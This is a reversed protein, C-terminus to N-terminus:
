SHPPPLDGAWTQPDKAPQGPLLASTGGPPGPGGGPQLSPKPSLLTQQLALGEGTSDGPTWESGLAPPCVCLLGSECVCVTLSPPMAARRPDWRAM